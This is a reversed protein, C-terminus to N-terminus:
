KGTLTDGVNYKDLKEEFWFEKGGWDYKYLWTGTISVSKSTIIKPASKDHCSIMFLISVLYFFKM